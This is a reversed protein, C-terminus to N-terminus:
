TSDGYRYGVAAQEVLDYSIGADELAANGAERAMDPYDWERGGPKEFKTMGVGVGFVKRGMSKRSTSGPSTRRVPASPYLLPRFRAVRPRLVRARRGSARTPD